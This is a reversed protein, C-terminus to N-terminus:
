DYRRGLHVSNGVFEETQRQLDHQIRSCVPEKSKSIQMKLMNPKTGFYSFLLPSFLIQLSVPIFKEAHIFGVVFGCASESLLSKLPFNLFILIEPIKDMYTHTHAYKYM